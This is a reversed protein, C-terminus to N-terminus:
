GHKHSAAAKYADKTEIGLTSVMQHIVTYTSNVIVYTGDGVGADHGM